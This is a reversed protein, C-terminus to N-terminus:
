ALTDSEGSLFALENLEDHIKDLNSQLRAIKAQIETALELTDTYRKSIRRQLYIAVYDPSQWESNGRSVQIINQRRIFEDLPLKAM